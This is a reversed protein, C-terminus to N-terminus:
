NSVMFWSFNACSRLVTTKVNPEDQTRKTRALGDSTPYFLNEQDPDLLPALAITYLSVIITLHYADRRAKASSLLRALRHADQLPPLVLSQGSRESWRIHRLVGSPRIPCGAQYSGPVAM